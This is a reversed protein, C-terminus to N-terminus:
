QWEFDVTYSQPLKLNRILFSLVRKATGTIKLHQCTM